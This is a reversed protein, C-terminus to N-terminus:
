VEIIAVRKPKGLVGHAYQCILAANVTDYWKPKKYDSYCVHQEYDYNAPVIAGQFDMPFFLRSEELVKYDESGQNFDIEGYYKVSSPGLSFIRGSIEKGFPKREDLLHEDEETIPIMIISYPRGAKFLCAMTHYDKKRILHFMKM